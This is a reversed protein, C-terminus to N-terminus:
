SVNSDEQKNQTEIYDDWQQLWNKIRKIERKPLKIETPHKNKSLSKVLNDLLSSSGILNGALSDGCQGCNSGCTTCMVKGDKTLTYEIYELLGYEARKRHRMPPFEEYEPYRTKFLHLM